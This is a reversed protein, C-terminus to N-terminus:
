MMDSGVISLRGRVGTHAASQRMIPLLLCTLLLAGIVNVAVHSEVGGVTDWKSTLIGANLLAADLRKLSSARMAFSKVSEPDSMDLQWVEVTAKPVGCSKVIDQAAAEGKTVTRVAIIVKAAGLGVIQRAAERGLGTNSGTVIVTQGSFTATPKPISTLLQSKLFGGTWGLRDTFGIEAM